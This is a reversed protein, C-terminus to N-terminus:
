YLNEKRYYVDIPPHGPLFDVVEGGLEVVIIIHLRASDGWREVWSLLLLLTFDQPTPPFTFISCNLEINIQHSDSLPAPTIVGGL